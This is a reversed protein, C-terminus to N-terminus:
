ILLGDERRLMFGRCIMYKAILDLTLSLLYFLEEEQNFIYVGTLSDVLSIMFFGVFFLYNQINKTRAYNIFVVSGNISAIIGFVIVIVTWQLDLNKFLMLVVSYPLIFPLSFTLVDTVSKVKLYKDYIIKIFLVHAIFYCYFCYEFYNRIDAYFLESIWFVFVMLIYTKNVEKKPVALLYMALLVPFLFLRVIFHLELNLDFAAYLLVLALLMYVFTLIFTRKM